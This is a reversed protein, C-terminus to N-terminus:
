DTGVSFPAAEGLQALALIVEVDTPTFCTGVKFKPNSRLQQILKAGVLTAAERERYVVPWGGEPMELEVVM